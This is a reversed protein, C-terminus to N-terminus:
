LMRESDRLRLTMVDNAHKLIIQAWNTVKALGTKWIHHGCGKSFPVEM